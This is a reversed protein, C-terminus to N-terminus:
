AAERYAKRVKRVEKYGWNSLVERIQIEEVGSIGVVATHPDFMRGQVKATLPLVGQLVKVVNKAQFASEHDTVILVM